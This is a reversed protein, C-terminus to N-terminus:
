YFVWTVDTDTKQNFYLIASAERYELSATTIIELYSTEQSTTKGSFIAVAAWCTHKISLHTM